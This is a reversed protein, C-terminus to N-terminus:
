VHKAVGRWDRRVKYTQWRYEKRDEQIDATLPISACKPKEADVAGTLGLTAIAAIIASKLM